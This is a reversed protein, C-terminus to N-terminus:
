NEAINHSPNIRWHRFLNRRHHYRRGCANCKLEQGCEWKQHYTLQYSLLRSKAFTRGCHCVTHDIKEKGNEIADNTENNEIHLFSFLYLYHKNNHTEIFELVKPLVVREDSRLENLRFQIDGIPQSTSGLDNDGM